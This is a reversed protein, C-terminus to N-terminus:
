TPNTKLSSSKNSVKLSNCELLSIRETWDANVSYQSHLLLQM